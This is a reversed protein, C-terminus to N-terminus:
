GFLKNKVENIESMLYIVSINHSNKALPIYENHSQTIKKIAEADFSLSIKRLYDLHESLKVILYDDKPIKIKDIEDFSIEDPLQKIDSIPSNLLDVLYSTYAGFNFDIIENTIEDNDAYIYNLLSSSIIDSDFIKLEDIIIKVTRTTHFFLPTGDLSKRDGYANDAMEYASIVKNLEISDLKNRLLSELEEKSFYINSM